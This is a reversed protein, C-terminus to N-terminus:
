SHGVTDLTRGHSPTQQERDVVKVKVSTVAVRMAVVGSPPRRFTTQPHMSRRQSQQIAGSETYNVFVVAKLHM